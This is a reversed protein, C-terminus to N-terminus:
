AVITKLQTAWSVSLRPYSSDPKQNGFDSAVLGLYGLWDPFKCQESIATPDVNMFTRMATGKDLHLDFRDNSECLEMFFHTFEQHGCTSCSLKWCWREKSATICAQEFANM